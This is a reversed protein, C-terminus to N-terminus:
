LARASPTGHGELEADGDSTEQADVDEDPVEGREEPKESMPRVKKRLHAMKASAHKVLHAFWKSSSCEVSGRLRGCVM